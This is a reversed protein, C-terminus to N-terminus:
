SRRASAGSACRAALVRFGDLEPMMLDLVVLDYSQETAIRLGERGDHALAVEYGEIELNNRLGFALDVDDEVVLLRNM